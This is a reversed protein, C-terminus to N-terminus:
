NEWYPKRNGIVACFAETREPAATERGYHAVFSQLYQNYLSTQIPNLKYM